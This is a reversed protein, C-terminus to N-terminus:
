KFVLWQDYFLLKDVTTLGTSKQKAFSSAQPQQRTHTRACTRTHTTEHMRARAHTDHQIYTHANTHTDWYLSM